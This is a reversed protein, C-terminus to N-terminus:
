AVVRFQDMTAPRDVQILIGRLVERNEPMVPRAENAGSGSMLMM